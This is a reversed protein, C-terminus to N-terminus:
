EGLSQVGTCVNVRSVPGIALKHCLNKKLKILVASEGGEGEKM